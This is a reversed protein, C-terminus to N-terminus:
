YKEEKRPWLKRFLFIKSNNVGSDASREVSDGPQADQNLKNDAMGKAKDLIGSMKTTNPTIQHFLSQTKKRSNSPKFFCIDQLQHSKYVKEIGNVQVCNKNPPSTSGRMERLLHGQWSTVAKTTLSWYSTRIWSNFSPEQRDLIAARWPANFITNHMFHHLYKKNFHKTETLNRCWRNM